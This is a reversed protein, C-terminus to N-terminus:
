LAEEMGLLRLLGRLNIMAKPVFSSALVYEQDKSGDPSRESCHANNGAPGLGDLVPARSWLMNGDSLGGREERTVTIGQAEGAAQWVAFLRETAPNRPWPETQESLQVKVRCRYGDQSTIDSIDNLALMSQVAADFVLPAFCRMEVLAHAQHPVRNIVTGGSVRGVNFTLQKEYDTLAAVKQIVHAMQVIANAGLPHSNGAHASKGEVHISFAARGKRATVVPYAASKPTGGEFVLCALTDMPMKQACHGAFDLSLAEESADLCILWNTKDLAAPALVQIADLLMYIMVTGGKIDVTGPGYIRQGDRRWHFANALEEEPSFVTDLHSVMVVTPASPDAGRALFLHRGYGPNTSQIFEAQFDLTNLVQATLDGLADVGSPNATFSNIGVMQRLLDLYRDLHTVFHSHFQAIFMSSLTESIFRYVAM